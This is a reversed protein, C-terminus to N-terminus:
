FTHMHQNASQTISLTSKMPMIHDLQFIQKETIREMIRLRSRRRFVSGTDASEKLTIL